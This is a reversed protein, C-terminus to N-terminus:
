ELGYKMMVLEALMFDIETDIDISREAPMVYPITKECYSSKYKYLMQPTSIYIAGNPMYTKPLDQRRMKLYENGFLHKLYGGDIKFSWYPPHKAECVSVVSECDSNLFLDIANDIDKATRLPSTPQLLVVINPNYNETRLVELLHFVADITPSEDKALEKPRKIIEASWDRSVEAIEDNETSVIIKDLYESKRAQWITWAILPKGLLPKINKKPIGKSGGRAPIIAVIKPKM